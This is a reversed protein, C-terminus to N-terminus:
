LSIRSQDPAQCPSTAGTTWTSSVGLDLELLVPLLLEPWPAELSWSGPAQPGAAPSVRLNTAFAEEVCM